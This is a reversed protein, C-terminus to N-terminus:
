IHSQGRTSRSPTRLAGMNDAFEILLGEFGSLATWGAHLFGSSVHLRADLRDPKCAGEALAPLDQELRAMLAQILPLRGDFVVMYSSTDQRSYTIRVDFARARRQSGRLLQRLLADGGAPIHVDFDFGAM